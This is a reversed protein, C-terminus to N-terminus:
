GLWPRSRDRLSAAATPGRNRPDHPPPQPRQTMWPAFPSGPDGDAIEAQAWAEQALRGWDPELGLDKCILAVIEGIPRSM